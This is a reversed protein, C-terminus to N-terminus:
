PKNESIYNKVGISRNEKASLWYYNDPNERETMVPGRKNNDRAESIFEFSGDKASGLWDHYENRGGTITTAYVDGDILGDKYDAIYNTIYYAGETLMEMNYEYHDQGTGNPLDNSFSGTFTHHYIIDDKNEGTHIHFHVWKGGGERVGNKWEGYYYENDAYVAVGTGSPAGGEDVDGYYIYNDTGRLSYSMAIYRDLHSLDWVAEDNSDKFYAEMEKLNQKANYKVKSYDKAATDMVPKDPEPTGSIEPTETPKETAEAPTEDEEREIINLEEDEAVTDAAEPEDTKNTDIVNQKISEQLDDSKKDKKGTLLGVSVGAVLVLLCAIIVLARVIISRRDEDEFIENDTNEHENNKM